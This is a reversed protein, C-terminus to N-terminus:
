PLLTDLKERAQSGLASEPNTEAVLRLERIAKDRHGAELYAIGLWYHADTMGPAGDISQKLYHIAKGTDNAALYAIGRNQQIVPRIVTGPERRLAAEYQALAKPYDGKKYYAWGMNNLAIAPTKYLMNSLARNFEEIARDYLGEELYLRGLHTHAESYDPRMSLATEFQKKAEDRLGNEAYALGTYYRIEPDDPSLRQAMLFERLAPSFHGSVLYATGMKVHSTAQERDQRSTACGTSLLAAAMIALLILGAVVGKKTLYRRDMITRM